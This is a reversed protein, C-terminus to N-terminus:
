KKGSSVVFCNKSSYFFKKASIKLNKGGEPVWAQTSSFIRTVGNFFQHLKLRKLVMRFQSIKSFRIRLIFYKVSALQTKTKANAANFLQIKNRCQCCL